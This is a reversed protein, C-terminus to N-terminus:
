AEWKEAQQQAQTHRGATHAQEAEHQVGPRCIVSLAGSCLFVIGHCGMSGSFCATFIFFLRHRMTTHWLTDKVDCSNM